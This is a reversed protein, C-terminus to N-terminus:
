AFEDMCVVLQEPAFHLKHIAYQLVVDIGAGVNDPWPVGGSGGFGPTNWALVCYQSTAALSGVGVEYLGCNGECTIVLQTAGGSRRNQLVRARMVCRDIFVTDISDGLRSRVSARRAGHAEILKRRGSYQAAHYRASVTLSHRIRRVLGHAPSCSRCASQTRRRTPSPRNSHPWHQTRHGRTIMYLLSNVSNRRCITSGNTNSRDHGRNTTMCPWCREARRRQRAALLNVYITEVM